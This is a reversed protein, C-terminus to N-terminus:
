RGAWDPNPIPLQAEVDTRWQQLQARLTAARDPFKQSLAATEGPDSALDYLEVRQDEFYELLKWDGARIASVPSTTAYYHPYHFYLTRLPFTASPGRLQPSVDMGDVASAADPQVGVM